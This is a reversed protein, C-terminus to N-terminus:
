RICTEGRGIWMLAEFSSIEYCLACEIYAQQFVVFM